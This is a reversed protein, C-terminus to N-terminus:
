ATHAYKQVLADFDSQDGGDGGSDDLLGARSLYKRTEEPLVSPDKNAALWRRARGPGANYAVLIAAQDGDFKDNLDALIKSASQRAYAPDDLKDYDIGYTKATAPTIQYRGRAGKPSVASDGSGELRRVTDLLKPAAGDSSDNSMPKYGPAYENLLSDFDSVPAEADPPPPPPPTPDGGTSHTEDGKAPPDDYTIAGAKAPAGPKAAPAGGPTAQPAQPSQSGAVAATAGVLPTNPEATAGAAGAGGWKSPPNFLPEKGLSEPTSGGLIREMEAPDSLAQGLIGHTEPDSLLGKEEPLMDAVKALAVSALKRAPHMVAESAHRVKDAGSMGQANLDGMASLNEATDSGSTVKNSRDQEAVRENVAEQFKDYSADDPFAIKVKDRFDESKLLKRMAAVDGVNRVEYLLGEGLGEKYHERAASSSMGDLTQTIKEATKERGATPANYGLDYAELNESDAGYRKLWADYEAHGGQAPDRANNRIDKGLGDLAEGLGGDGKRYAEHASKLLAKSIEQADSVRLSLGEPNEELSNLRENLSGLFGGIEKVAPNTSMLSLRAAKAIAARADPQSLAHVSHENLKVPLNGVAEMGSAAAERRAQNSAKLKAFYTNDGGIAEGIHGKIQDYATRSHTKISSTIPARGPGPTRKVAKAYPVFADGGAHFAPRDPHEKLKGVVEEHTTGERKIAKHLAQGVRQEQPTLGSGRGIPAEGAAGAEGKPGGRTGVAMLGANLAFAADEASLGTAASIAGVAPSVAAAGVDGGIRDAAAGRQDTLGPNGAGQQWNKKEGLFGTFDRVDEAVAHAAGTVASKARGVMGGLYDSNDSAPPTPDEYDIKPM